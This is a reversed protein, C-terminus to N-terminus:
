NADAEWPWPGDVWNWETRSKNGYMTMPGCKENIEAVLAEKEGILRHYHELAEACNPYANLYLATDIISFDVIKLKKKLNQCSADNCGGGCNNQMGSNMRANRNDIM